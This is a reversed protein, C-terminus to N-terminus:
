WTREIFGTDVNGKVYQPHSLIELCIPITSKVPEIKFEQLARKMCAIAETRTRKHVILKGIMSDYHPSITYGAHAHTDLRVGLGGPAIFEKIPGPSPSFGNYPDEANIRCEIAVGNRKIDKQRLKLHEGSAIRLQWQVLDVGTIM